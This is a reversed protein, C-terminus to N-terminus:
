GNVKPCYLAEKKIVQEAEEEKGQRRLVRALERYYIRETPHWYVALGYHRTALALDQQKEYAFGLLFHTMAHAEYLRVSKELQEAAQAYRDLRLYVQGMGTYALHFTPVLDQVKRFHEEARAHDKLGDTLLTGLKWSLNWDSPNMAIAQEYAAAARKLEQPSGFIKLRDLEQQWHEMAQGHYVQSTFPPKVLFEQYVKRALMYRDADTYALRTRCDEESLAVPQGQGIQGFRTTVQRGIPEFLSGAVLYNGTFNMHVHEYFLDEGPIERDSHLALAQEVDVLSVGQPGLQRATERVIDNLRNDARFRLTDLDRAQVYHAKAQEYQETRDLCRALRFALVAFQDDIAQAQRYSEIAQGYAGQAELTTGQQFLGDWTKLDASKLDPRHLSAFPPCDRLNSAVTCVIVQTGARTATTCLDTLNETFHGYVVQLDPDSLRVQKDLFMEMGGWSQLLRRQGGQSLRSVCQGLRTKRLEIGLRILSLHESFPGFVTGKGFPGIVENNGMYVVLLDPHHRIIDKGIQYIVHSNIATMGANVVEFHVEPYAARLMERLVRAFAYAGDPIGQAASEGLVVVRFIQNSKTAPFVFPEFQRALAPPFFQWSYRPNDAYSPVGQVRCPIVASPNFGVGLLRLGLEIALLVLIPLGLAVVGRFLWLRWGTVTPTASPAKGLHGKKAQDKAQRKAM